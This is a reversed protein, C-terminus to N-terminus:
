VLLGITAPADIERLPTQARTTLKPAHHVKHVKHVKHVISLLPPSASAIFPTPPPLTSGAIGGVVLQREFDMWDMWDM